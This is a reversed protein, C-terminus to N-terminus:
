FRSCIWKNVLVQGIRRKPWFTLLRHFWLEFWGNLHLYIARCVTTHILEADCHSIQMCISASLKRPFFIGRRAFWHKWMNQESWFACSEIRYSIIFSYNFIYPSLQWENEAAICFALLFEISPLGKFFCSPMKHTVSNPQFPHLKFVDQNFFVILYEFTYQFWQWFSCKKFYSCGVAMLSLQM